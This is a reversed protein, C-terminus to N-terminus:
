RCKFFCNTKKHDSIGGAKLTLSVKISSIFVCLPHTKALKAITRYENTLEDITEQSAESFDYNTAEDLVSNFLTNGMIRLSDTGPLELM